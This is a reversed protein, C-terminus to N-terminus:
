FFLFFIFNRPIHTTSPETEKNFMPMREGLIDGIIRTTGGIRGKREINPTNKTAYSMGGYCPNRWEKWHHELNGSFLTNAFPVSTNWPGMASTLKMIRQQCEEDRIPDHIPTENTNLQQIQKDQVQQVENVRAKQLRYDYMTPKKPLPINIEKPWAPQEPAPKLNYKGNEKLLNPISQLTNLKINGLTQEMVQTRTLLEEATEPDLRAIINTPMDGVEKSGKKKPSGIHAYEGWVGMATSFLLKKQDDQIRIEDYAHIDVKNETFLNKIWLVYARWYEPTKEKYKSIANM